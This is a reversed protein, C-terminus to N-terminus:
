IRIDEKKYIEYKKYTEYIKTNLLWINNIDKNIDKIQKDSLKYVKQANPLVKEDIHNLLCCIFASYDVDSNSDFNDYKNNKFDKIKEIIFNDISKFLGFVVNEM